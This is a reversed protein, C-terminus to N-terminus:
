APATRSLKELQRNIVCRGRRHMGFAQSHEELQLTTVKKNYLSYSTQLQLLLMTFVTAYYMRASANHLKRKSFPPPPPRLELTSHIEMQLKEM